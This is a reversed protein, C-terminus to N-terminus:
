PTVMRSQEGSRLIFAFSQYGSLTAASPLVKFTVGDGCDYNSGEQLLVGFPEVEVFPDDTTGNGLRVIAGVANLNGVDGLTMEEVPCFLSESFKAGARLIETREQIQGDNDRWSLRFEVVRSTGNEMELLVAPAEGPITAAGQDAGLSQFLTPNLFDQLFSCGCLSLALAAVASSTIVPRGYSSVVM